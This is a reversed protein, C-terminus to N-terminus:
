CIARNGHALVRLPTNGGHAPVSIPRRVAPAGTCNYHDRRLIFIAQMM